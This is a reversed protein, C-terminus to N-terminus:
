GAPRRSWPRPRRHAGARDPAARCVPANRGGGLVAGPGSAGPHLGALGSRRPAGSAPPNPAHRRSEETACPDRTDAHIVQVRLHSEGCQTDGCQPLATARRSASRAPISPLWRPQCPPERLEELPPTRGPSIIEPPKRAARFSARWGTISVMGVSASRCCPPAGSASAETQRSHPLGPRSAAGSCRPSGSAPPNGRVMPSQRRPLPRWGPLFWIPTTVTRASAEWGTPM